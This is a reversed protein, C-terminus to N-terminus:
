RRTARPCESNYLTITHFTCSQNPQIKRTAGDRERARDGLPIRDQAYWMETARSRSRSRTEIKPTQSNTPQEIGIGSGSVRDRNLLAFYPM